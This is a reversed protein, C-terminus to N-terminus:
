SGRGWTVTVADTLTLTHLDDKTFRDGEDVIFVFGARPTSTQSRQDGTAGITAITGNGKATGWVATHKRQWQGAVFTSPTQTTRASADSGSSGPATVDDYVGSDVTSSVFLGGFRGTGNGNALGGFTELDRRHYATNDSAGGGRWMYDGNIVGIGDITFSAPTLVTPTLTLELTYTLRLKYDSTKTVTTPDGEGDRFLERVYLATMEGSSGRGVGWETLNGNADEFDFEYTCSGEYVGNGTRTWAWTAVKTQTTGVQNGLSVDAVDPEVSGTGVVAWQFSGAGNAISVDAINNLGQDLFLNHQQGGRVARGSRDVLQWEMWGELGGGIRAPPARRDRIRLPLTERLADVPTLIQKRQTM